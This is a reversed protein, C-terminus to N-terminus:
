FNYVVNTSFNDVPAINYSTTNVGNTASNDFTTDVLNVSYTMMFFFDDMFEYSFGLDLSFALYSITLIDETFGLAQLGSTTSNYYALSTGFYPM